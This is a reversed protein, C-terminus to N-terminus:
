EFFCCDNVVQIFRNSFLVPFFVVEHEIPPGSFMYEIKWHGDAVRHAQELNAARQNRVNWDITQAAMAEILEAWLKEEANHARMISEFSFFHQDVPKPWISADVFGNVGFFQPLTSGFGPFSVLDTFAMPNGASAVSTLNEALYFPYNM